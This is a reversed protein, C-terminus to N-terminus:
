AGDNAEQLWSYHNDNVHYLQIPAGGEKGYGTVIDGGRDDYVEIRLNYNFAMIALEAEDGRGGDVVRLITEERVLTELNSPLENCFLASYIDNRMLKVHENAKITERSVLLHNNKIFKRFLPVKAEAACEFISHYLCDGDGKVQRVKFTTRQGNKTKKITGTHKVQVRERVRKIEQIKEAQINEAQINLAENLYQLAKGYQKGKAYRLGCNYLATVHNHSNPQHERFYKEAKEPDSQYTENFKQKLNRKWKEAENLNSQYAEGVKRKLNRKGKKAENPSSQYAKNFKRKTIEQEHFELLDKITTNEIIRQERRPTANMDKPLKYYQIEKFFNEGMHQCKPIKEKIGDRCKKGESESAGEGADLHCKCYCTCGNTEERSGLCYTHRQMIFPPLSEYEPSGLATVVITVLQCKGPETRKIIGCDDKALRTIERVELGDKRNPLKGLEVKFDPAENDIKTSILVAVNFEKPRMMMLCMKRGFIVFGHAAVNVKKFVHRFYMHFLNMKQDRSCPNSTHSRGVKYKEIFKNKQMHIAQSTSHTHFMNIMERFPEISM